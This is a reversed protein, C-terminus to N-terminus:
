LSHGSIDFKVKVRSPVYTKSDAEVAPRPINYRAAEVELHFNDAAATRQRRAQQKRANVALEKSQM